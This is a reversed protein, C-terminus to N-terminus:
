SGYTSCTGYIRQKSPLKGGSTRQEVDQTVFQSVVEEYYASVAELVDTKIEGLKKNFNKGADVLDNVVTAGKANKYDKYVENKTSLLEAAEGMNEVLTDLADIIGPIDGEGEVDEFDAIAKLTANKNNKINEVFGKVAKLKSVPLNSSELKRKM